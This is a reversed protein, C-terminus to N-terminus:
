SGHNEKEKEAEQTKPSACRRCQASSVWFDYVMHRMKMWPLAKASQIRTYGRIRSSDELFQLKVPCTIIEWNLRKGTYRPTCAISGLARYSL